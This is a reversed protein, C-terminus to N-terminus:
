NNYIKRVVRKIWSDKNDEGNLFKILEMPYNEDEAFNYVDKDDIELLSCICARLCDGTIGKEHNYINKQKIPIM